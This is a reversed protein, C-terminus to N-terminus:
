KEIAIATVLDYKASNNQVATQRTFEHKLASCPESIVSTACHFM